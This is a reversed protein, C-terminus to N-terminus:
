EAHEADLRPPRWEEADKLDPDTGIVGGRNADRWDVREERVAHLTAQTLDANRFDCALLAARSFDAFQLRTDM